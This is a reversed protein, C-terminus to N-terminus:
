GRGARDLGQGESRESGAAEPATERAAPAAASDGENEAPRPEKEGDSPKPKRAAGLLPAVAELAAGPRLGGAQRRRGWWSRAARAWAAVRRPARFAPEVLVVLWRASSLHRSSALWLPSAVLTLAIVTVLVRYGDLSLAGAALGTAGLFFSFEGIQPLLSAVRISRVWPQGLGHLIAVTGLTKLLLVLFVLAILEVAHATIFDVEILLGISLFFLMMLVDRIPLTAAIFQPRQQSNGILLGALFAGFATTLGLLNSITAFLFCLTLAALALVGRGDHLLMEFPLRIRTRRSMYIVFLVLFAVAAVLRAITWFDIMEGPRLGTAVVLMPVLALDQAILIGVALRGVSSRLEGVEELMGVGVATSSLAFAFGLIVITAGPWGGLLGIVLAVALGLAVQLAVVALTLRYVRRFGRLSLEMGIVFMLLMAGLEALFRVAEVGTVLGFASPGLLVGALIYGVLPPQRLRLMLLGLALAVLFVATLGLFEYQHEVREEQAAASEV